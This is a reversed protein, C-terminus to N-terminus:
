RLTIDDLLDGVSDGLDALIDDGQRIQLPAALIAPLVVILSVFLLQM